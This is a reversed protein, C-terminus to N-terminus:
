VNVGGEVTYIIKGEQVSIQFSVKIRDTLNQLDKETKIKDPDFLYRHRGQELGVGCADEGDLVVDSFDVRVNAAPFLQWMKWLIRKLELGETEWPKKDSM